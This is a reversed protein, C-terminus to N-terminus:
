GESIAVAAIKEFQFNRAYDVLTAALVPHEREVEEAIGIVMERDAMSAAQHLRSVWEEDMGDFDGSGLIAAESPAVVDQDEYAFEVGLHRQMADFIENERFPKRIFEDCGAELITKRDEEFASATLAIVVTKKAKEAAKIIRTAEYGDMVPMRMDMWILQPQWSDWLDVAERGNVAMRVDFGLPELISALLSRSDPDDECVLIRYSPQGDALGVVQRPDEVALVEVADTLEAPIDFQFTSGEGPISELSIEGGMLRVYEQSIPLGLGTGEQSQRGAKTQAFAEFVEDRDEPAIGPGTDDVAFRIRPSPNPQYTLGLNIHGRSTFKIANGILNILVQRLKAEDLRM